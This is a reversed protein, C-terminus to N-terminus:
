SLRDCPQPLEEESAHNDHHTARRRANGPSRFLRMKKKHFNHAASRRKSHKITLIFLVRTDDPDFVLHDDQASIPANKAGIMTSPGANTKEVFKPNV